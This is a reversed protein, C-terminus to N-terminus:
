IENVAWVRVADVKGRIQVEGLDTFAFEDRRNDLAEYTPGSILIGHQPYEKNLAEIRSALNVTDGIVTYEQREPPGVAGALVMGTSIGIGIRIPEEGRAALRENLAVLNQRMDLATCIARYASEQLPKPAGYIVLASDGGFKNVTGDHTQAANVVVPLYENLLAVVEAPTSKESRATFGRIDCFLVSVVRNEGELKVQGTRIAEAVEQSVFRGFMDRLWEREQLGAVMENFAGALQALEDRSDVKFQVSLDGAGVRRTDAALRQVPAVVAGGIAQALIVGALIAIIGTLRFLNRSEALFDDIPATLVGMQLAGNISGTEEDRLPTTVRWIPDGDWEADELRTQTPLTIEGGMLDFQDSLQIVGDENVVATYAVAENQMQESLEQIRGIDSGQMLRFLDTLDDFDTLNLSQDAIGSSLLEAAWEAGAILTDQTVEEVKRREIPIVVQELAGVLLILILIMVATVRVRLSVNLRGRLAIKSFQGRGAQAAGAALQRTTRVLPTTAWYALALGMMLIIGGVTLIAQNLDRLFGGIEGLEMRLRVSGLLDGNENRIPAAAHIERQGSDTESVATVTGEADALPELVTGIEGMDFGFLVIDDQDAVVLELLGFANMEDILSRFQLMTEADLNGSQLDDLTLTEADPPLNFEVMSANFEVLSTVADVTTDELYNRTHRLVVATLGALVLLMLVATGAVFRMRISGRGLLGAAAQRVDPRYSTDITEMATGRLASRSPWYAALASIFPAIIMGALGSYIPAPLAELAAEWLPLDMLGFPIGGYSLAFILTIGTGAILGLLGGIMGMLAAEGTVVTMAQRRTMGIARLLGLEHRRETVSMVTTNVMGLAAALIALALMAYTMTELQDSTDLVAQLEEEIDTIWAADGHQDALAELETRFTTENTTPLPWITLAAPNGVDFQEKAAISIRSVPLNGGSGIGAVACDIPGTKGPLILSDGVGVEHRNAVGPPLLLGCGAEMIPVATEWDGEVFNYMGPRILERLDTMTSFFGPIPSSIEPITVMYSETLIARGDALAYFDEIVAPSLGIGSNMEDIQAIGSNRDFPYVYWTTQELAGAAGRMLLVENSFTLFGNLGNIMTLGVAFTLITLTVRRRDRLLNDAILRGNAGRLRATLRHALRGAGGVLAPLLLGVALLWPLTLLGFMVWEMPSHRGSWAGPPAIALYGWLVVLIIGGLITLSRTTHSVAAPWLGATAEQRLATLPSIRAAQRAPFWVSLLTIGLGMVIGLVYSGVSASGRGMEVGLQRFATLTLNGLIPGLLLGLLTGAAGIILAETQIQRLVQRQTMGLSRLVGIQQRRQTVTMAFANFILFGAAAMIVLGIILFIVDMTEMFWSLIGEGEQNMGELIGSSTVEAAVIMAVGLMVAFASFIARLQQEQLNRWALSYLHRAPERRTPREELEVQQEPNLTALASGRLLSRIPWRAAWASILPAALIGVIGNSITPKLARGAAPWLDLDTVGWSSGGLTTVIIVVSGMGAVVGFIAGVLGILASEGMVVQRIQRRTGGVARLLGLEQRREHISMVTTNVVGLAAAVVALLLMGNLAVTFLGLAQEQTQAFDTMRTLYVDPIADIAAQLDAELAVTDSGSKPTVSLGIPQTAGLEDGVIDGVISANVYGAGIGAITCDLPGNQGTVTLTDGIGVNQRNAILPAVLAGCGSQMIPLATEWDGE